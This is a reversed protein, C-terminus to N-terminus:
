QLWALPLLGSVQCLLGTREECVELVFQTFLVKRAIPTPPPYGTSCINVCVVYFLSLDGMFVGKYTSCTHSCSVGFVVLGGAPM